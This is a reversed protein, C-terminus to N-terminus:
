ADNQGTGTQLNEWGGQKEIYNRVEPNENITQTFLETKNRLSPARQALCIFLKVTVVLFAREYELGQSRSWTKSLSDAMERFKMVEKNKEAIIMQVPKELDENYQDGLRQLTKAIVEPNFTTATKEAVPRRPGTWLASGTHCLMAGQEWRESRAVINQGSQLHIQIGDADCELESGASLELSRCGNQSDESIDFLLAKVIQETQEEFTMSNKM